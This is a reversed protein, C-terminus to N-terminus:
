NLAELPKVNVVFHPYGMSFALATPSPGLLMLPSSRERRCNWTTRWRSSRFRHSAEKIEAALIAGDLLGLHYELVIADVPPSLLLRLGDSGNTATVLEYGNERL